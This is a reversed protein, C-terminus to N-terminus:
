QAPIPAHKRCPKPKAGAPRTVFIGSYTDAHENLYALLETEVVKGAFHDGVIWTGNGAYLGVHWVWVDVGDLKGIPGEKPNMAPSVLMLVDGPQLKSLELDKTAVPSLAPVPAGLQKKSVLTTPNYSYSKWGCGTVREAASFVLGQCDLGEGQARKRGGFEYPTGLQQRAADVWPNQSLVLSVLAFLM